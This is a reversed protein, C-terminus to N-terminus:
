EILKERAEKEDKIRSLHEVYKQLIKNDSKENLFNLIDLINEPEYFSYIGIKRRRRNSRKGKVRIIHFEVRDDDTIERASDSM